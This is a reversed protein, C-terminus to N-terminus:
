VRRWGVGVRRWGVVHRRTDRAVCSEARCCPMWEGVDELHLQRYSKAPLAALDGALSEELALWHEVLEYLSHSKVFEEAALEDLAFMAYARLSQMRLRARMGVACRYLMSASKGASRM